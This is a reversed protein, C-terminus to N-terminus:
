TGVASLRRRGDCVKLVANLASDNCVVCLPDEVVEEREVDGVRGVDECDDLKEDEEEDEGGEEGEGVDLGGIEGIRRVCGTDLVCVVLAPFGVVSVREVCSNVTDLQVVTWTRRREKESSHEIQQEPSGREECGADSNCHHM